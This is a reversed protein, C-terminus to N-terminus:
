LDCDEIHDIVGEESAEPNGAKDYKELHAVFEFFLLFVFIFAFVFVFSFVFEFLVFYM